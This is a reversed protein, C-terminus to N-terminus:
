DLIVVDSDDGSDRRGQAGSGQVNQKKVLSIPHQPHHTPPNVLPPTQVLPPPALSKGKKSQERSPLIGPAPTLKPMAPVPPQGKVIVELSSAPTSHAKPPKSSSSSSGSKNVLLSMSAPLNKLVNFALNQPDNPSIGSHHQKGLLLGQNQFAALTSALQAYNTTISASQQKLKSSDSSPKGSTATVTIDRGLNLPFNSVAAAPKSTTPAPPKTSSTKSRETSTSPLSHRSAKLASLNRQDLRALDVAPLSTLAKALDLVQQQQINRMIQESTKAGPKSVMQSAKFISDMQHSITKSSIPKSPNSTPLKLDLAPPQQSQPKPPQTGPKPPLPAPKSPQNAPKPPQNAPKPPQNTSKPPQHAPKPPQQSPKPPQHAPKPLQNTPKSPQHASKPPQSPGASTQPASMSTGSSAGASSFPATPRRNLPPKARSSGGRGRSAGGRNSSYFASPNLSMGSLLYSQALMWQQYEAQIKAMANPDSLGMALAMPNMFAMPNSLAALMSPDMMGLAASSSLMSSGSTLSKLLDATPNSSSSSKSPPQESSKQQPASEKKAPAPATSTSPKPNTTDKTSKNTNSFLALLNSIGPINQLHQPLKSASGGSSQLLKLAEQMVANSNAAASTSAPPQNFNPFGLKSASPIHERSISSAPATTSKMVSPRGRRGTAMGRKGRASVVGLSSALGGRVGGAGVRVRSQAQKTKCFALAQELLQSNDLSLNAEPRYGKYVKYSDILLSGFTNEQGPLNREIRDYARFIDMLLSLKRSSSPGQKIEILFQKTFLLRTIVETCM